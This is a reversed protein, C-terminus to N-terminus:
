SRPAPEVAQLRSGLPSALAHSATSRAMSSPASTTTSLLNPLSSAALPPSHSAKRAAIRASRGMIVVTEGNSASSHDCNAPGREFLTGAVISARPAHHVAWPLTVFQSEVPTISSARGSRSNRAPSLYVGRPKRACQPLSGGVHAERRIRRDKGRLELRARALWIEHDVHDRPPPRPADNTRTRGALARGQASSAAIMAIATVPSCMCNSQWAARLSQPGLDRLKSWAERLYRSGDARRGVKAANRLLFARCPRSDAPM